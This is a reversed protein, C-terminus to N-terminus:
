ATGVMRHTGCVTAGLTIGIVSDYGAVSVVREGVVAIRSVGSGNSRGGVEIDECVRV